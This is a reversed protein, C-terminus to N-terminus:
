HPLSDLSFLFFRGINGINVPSTEVNEYIANHLFEYIEIMYKYRIFWTLALVYVNILSDLLNRIIYTMVQISGCRNDSM